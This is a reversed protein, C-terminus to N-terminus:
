RPASSRGTVLEASIACTIALHHQSLQRLYFISSVPLLFFISTVSSCSPTKVRKYTYVFIVICYKMLFLWNLLNTHCPRVDRRSLTPTNQDFSGVCFRCIDPVLLLLNKHFWVQMLRTQPKTVSLHKEKLMIYFFFFFQTFAVPFSPVPLGWLCEATDRHLIFHKKGVVWGVM